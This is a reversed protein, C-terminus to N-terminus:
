TFLTPSPLSPSSEDFGVNQETNFRHSRLRYVGTWIRKLHGLCFKLADFVEGIHDIFEKIYDEFTGDYSTIVALETNSNLFVFRAFHVIALKDLAVRIPNQDPPLGQFHQLMGQLQLFDAESKIKMVLTLPSQVPNPPPAPVPDTM